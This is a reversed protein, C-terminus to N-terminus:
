GWPWRSQSINRQRPLNISKIFRELVVTKYRPPVTRGPLTVAEGALHETTCSLRLGPTVYIKTDGENSVFFVVKCDSPYFPLFVWSYNSAFSLKEIYHSVNGNTFTEM